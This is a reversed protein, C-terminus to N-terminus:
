SAVMRSLEDIKAMEKRSLKLTIAGFNQFAHETKTAGPIAVISDGHYNVVWSLAVESASCNYSSAINELTEMLTRSKKIMRGVQVRRILPLKNVLEPNKHFKGTLLGQALPSCAIITVNLEKAADLIGNKEIHRDLLNFRVQNAALPFGREALARHSKRM